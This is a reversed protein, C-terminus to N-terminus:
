ALPKGMRILPLPVGPVPEPTFREIETYGCARYLPEGALTSMLEIGLFGEAAAAQECRALILRGIGRRAHDPHTYMARVRAADRTPDLLAADRGAAHDGGYLTARDYNNLPLGQEIRKPLDPNSIFHRGFVVVDADGKEVIKEASDPEFGGAALIRGKFIKRLKVAASPELGEKIAESGNIRPEIVHLYALGFRNLAEAVYAGTADPSSDAM